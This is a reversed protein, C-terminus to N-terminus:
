FAAHPVVGLFLASVVGVLKRGFVVVRPRDPGIESLRDMCSMSRGSGSVAHSIIEPPFRYGCYSPTQSIM